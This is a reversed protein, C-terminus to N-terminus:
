DIFGAPNNDWFVHRTVSQPNLTTNSDFLELPLTFNRPFDDPVGIIEQLDPYGTRRYTNYGEGGNGFSAIYFERSIIALKDAQSGTDFAALTVYVYADIEQQQMEFANTSVNSAFNRVNDFSKRMAEEIYNRPSGRIGSVLSAEALAVNTFSSLIFPYIGEGFLQNQIDRARVFANNHFAGGLPYVGWTTKRAGDNPLGERDGHDRGWYLTGVCCYDYEIQTNGFCPLRTGSPPADTQRYFYYRARPDILGNEVFPPNADGTNM